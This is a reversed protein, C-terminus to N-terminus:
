DQKPGGPSTEFRYGSHQDPGPTIALSFEQGWDTVELVGYDVILQEGHQDRLTQTQVHEEAWDYVGPEAYQRSYNVEVLGLRIWNDVFVALRDPEIPDAVLRTNYRLPLLHRSIPTRSRVDEPDASEYRVIPLGTQTDLLASLLVAEDGRLQSIIDAFGPHAHEAQKVNMSTALLALFMRRLAESEHTFTLGQMVPGAVSLPPEQLADEPIDATAADLEDPFKDRLYNEFKRVGLNVLALPLLATRVTESLIRASTGLARGAARMDPQEKAGDLARVVVESIVEKGTM